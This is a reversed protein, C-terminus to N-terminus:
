NIVMVKLSKKHDVRKKLMKYINGSIIKINNQLLKHCLLIFFLM